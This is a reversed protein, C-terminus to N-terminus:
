LYLTETEGKLYAILNESKANNWVIYAEIASFHSARWYDTREELFDNVQEGNANDAIRGIGIRNIHEYRSPMVDNEFYRPACAQILEAARISYCDGTMQGYICRRRNNPDLIRASLKSLEEQTANQKLAIAEKTVEAIFVEQTYM